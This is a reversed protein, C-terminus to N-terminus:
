GNNGNKKQPRTYDWGEEEQSPGQFESFKFEQIPRKETSLEALLEKELAAREPATSESGEAGSGLFFELIKSGIGKTPAQGSGLLTDATTGIDGEIRDIQSQIQAKEKDTTALELGQKLTALNWAPISTKGEAFPVRMVGGDYGQARHGYTDSWDRAIEPENAWLYRRQKESQFPM